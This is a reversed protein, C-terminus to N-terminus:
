ACRGHSCSLVGSCTRSAISWVRRFPVPFTRSKSADRPCAFSLKRRLLGVGPSESKQASRRRRRGPMEKPRAPAARPPTRSPATLLRLRDVPSVRSDACSNRSGCILGPPQVRVGALGPGFGSLDASAVIWSINPIVRKGACAATLSIPPPLQYRLVTAGRCPNSGRNM